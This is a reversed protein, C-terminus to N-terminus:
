RVIGSFVLSGKGNDGNSKITIVLRNVAVVTDLADAVTFSFTTWARSQTDPLTVEKDGTLTFDKGEGAVTISTGETLPNGNQDMVTYNFLQSGGNPIDFGFPSCNIIPVGSFLVLTSQRITAFSEDTTAATVAAFGPGFVPHNPLPNASYLTVSAVGLTSTLASGQIIGGETSFYVATGPRVPNSYKDGVYATIIDEVGFINYGPINVKAPVCSFHALDPLGGHITVAVPNSSIIRSGLSISATVQVVGAKTGSTLVVSAQGNADTRTSPPNLVTGSGPSAALVFGVNVANDLDLAIGLSDVAQFVLQVSELGGAGKIGINPVSTGFLYISAPNRTGTGGGGGSAKLLLKSANITRNAVAFVKTTDSTFGEKRAVLALELGAKITFEFTYKGNGDSVASKNITTDNSIGTLSIAANAVPSGTSFDVVEGNIIVTGTEDGTVPNSATDSKQCGTLILIPILFLITYFKKM